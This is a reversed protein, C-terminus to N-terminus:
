KLSARMSDVFNHKIKNCEKKASKFDMKCQKKDKKYDAKCAKLIPKPETQTEANTKCDALTTKVTGYCGNKIGAADSVCQGFTMEKESTTNETDAPDTKASASFGAILFLSVLIVIIQITKM